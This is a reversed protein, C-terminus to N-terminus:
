DPNRWFEICSHYSEFINMTFELGGFFYVPKIYDVFEIEEIVGVQCFFESEERVVGRLLKYVPYLTKHSFNNIYLSVM